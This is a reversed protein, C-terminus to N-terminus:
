AHVSEEPNASVNANVNASVDVIYSNKKWTLVKEASEIYKGDGRRNLGIEGTGVLWMVLLIGEGKGKKNKKADEANEATLRGGITAFCGAGIISISSQVVDCLITSKLV